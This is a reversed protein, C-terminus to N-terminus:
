IQLTSKPHQNFAKSTGKPIAHLMVVNSSVHNIHWSSSKHAKRSRGGEGQRGVSRTQRHNLQSLFIKDSGPIINKFNHHEPPSNTIKAGIEDPIYGFRFINIRASTRAHTRAINRYHASHWLTVSTSWTSNNPTTSPNLHKITLM